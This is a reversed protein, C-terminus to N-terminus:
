RIEQAVKRWPAVTREVWKLGEVTVLGFLSFVLVGFLVTPTDFSQGANGILYGLGAQSGFLESVVVGTLARGIGLRLGVLIYPL